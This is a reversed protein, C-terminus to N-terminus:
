EPLEECKIGNDNLIEITKKVINVQSDIRLINDCDELDFNWNSDALLKNLHPTLLKITKKSSISTKFVFVM